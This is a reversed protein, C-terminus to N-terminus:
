VNVKRYEVNMYDIHDFKYTGNIYRRVVVFDDFDDARFITHSEIDRSAVNYNFNPNGFKIDKIYTLKAKYDKEIIYKFDKEVKIKKPGLTMISQVPDIYSQQFEIEM